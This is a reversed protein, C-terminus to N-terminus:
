FAAQDPCVSSSSPLLGDGLVTFKKINFHKYWVCSEGEWAIANLCKRKIRQLEEAAGRCRM